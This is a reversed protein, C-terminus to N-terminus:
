AGPRTSRRDNGDGKDPLVPTQTPLGHHDEVGSLYGLRQRSRQVAWTMLRLTAGLYVINMVINLTVLARAGQTAPTIDGFGVTSLMTTEFYLADVKTSLGDMSSPNRSELVYYAAAFSILLTLLAIVLGTVADTVPHDSHLVRLLRRISFPFLGALVVVIFVSALVWSDEFRVVFYAVVVVGLRVAVRASERWAYAAAETRLAANVQTPRRGSRRARATM